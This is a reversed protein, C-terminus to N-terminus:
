KAILQGGPNIQYASLSTPEDTGRFDGLTFKGMDAPAGNIITKGLWNATISGGCLNLKQVNGTFIGITLASNRSADPSMLTITGIEANGSLTFVGPIANLADEVYVDSSTGGNYGSTNNKITGGNITFNSGYGNVTGARLAGIISATHKVINDKITGGEMIFNGPFGWVVGGVYTTTFGSIESGDLMTLTATEGGIFILNSTSEVSATFITNKGLTLKGNATIYFMRENVITSTITRPAGIGMIRLDVFGYIFLQYTVTVNDDLLLNWEGAQGGIFELAAEVDNKAVSEVPTSASWRATLTINGVIPTTSFNFPTTAGELFWGDFNYFEPLSGEYLGAAPTWVKIPPAPPETATAGESVIQSNVTEPIGGDTDFSVTYTVSPPATVTVANSTKSIFGTAGVTVTYSGVETPTFKDSNTGVNTGDKKWQYSVTENGSYVATLVMGTFVNSNPNITITGSLDKDAVDDDKCSTFTVTMVLAALVFSFVFKYMIVKVIPRYM